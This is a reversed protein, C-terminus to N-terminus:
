VQGKRPEERVVGGGGMVRHPRAAGVVVAIQILKKM